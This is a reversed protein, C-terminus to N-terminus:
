IRTKAYEMYDLLNYENGNQKLVYNITGDVNSIYIAEFICDLIPAKKDIDILGYKKDISVVITKGVGEVIEPIIITNEINLQKNADYGIKDYTTDAIIDGEENIIGFKNDKKVVYLLPSYSLIKIDDYILKVKTEGNTKIIGYKNNSSVIFDNALEIFEMSNYKTGVIEELNRNIIGKKSDKNVVILNYAIAKLNNKNSDISSYGKKTIKDKYDEALKEVTNISGNEVILNLAVPLDLANVYLKDNYYLIDRSIEFYQYGQTNNVATKYINKSDKEMGIIELGNDIYCKEKNESFELYAGNYYTYDLKQALEKLEIYYEGNTTTVLFDQSTEVDASNIKLKVIKPNQPKTIIFFAILSVTLVLLIISTILLGLVLKQNKTKEKKRNEGLLDM